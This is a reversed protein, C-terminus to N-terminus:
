IAFGRAKNNSEDTNIGRVFHSPEESETKARFAPTHGIAVEKTLNVKVNENVKRKLHAPLDWSAVRTSFCKDSHDLDTACIWVPEWLPAIDSVQLPQSVNPNICCCNRVMLQQWLIFTYSYTKRAPNPLTSCDLQCHHSMILEPLNPLRDKNKRSFILSCVFIAM